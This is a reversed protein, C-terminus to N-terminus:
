NAIAPPSDHRELANFWDFIKESIIHKALKAKDKTYIVVHEPKKKGRELALHYEPLPDEAIIERLESRFKYLPGKVGLKEALNKIEIKWLAKDRGCHKRAVEYIRRKTPSSLKFYARDLTLVEFSMLSNWFWESMTVTFSIVRSVEKGAKNRSKKESLVKYTDIMSFGETQTKGGTPINTEITTGRLRRLMGLINEFSTRGDGRDTGTLFDYSEIKITRSVPVDRKQNMAEVIHSAVYLLLDKDFVSAAGEGSPIVRVTRNGRKYERITTDANKSLSFLPIEMSAFDDKLPWNVNDPVFLDIQRPDTATADGEDKKKRAVKPASAPKTSEPLHFLDDETEAAPSVAKRRTSNKL